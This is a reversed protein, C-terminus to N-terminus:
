VGNEDKPKEEPEEPEEHDCSVFIDMSSGGKRNVIYDFESCHICLKEPNKKTM